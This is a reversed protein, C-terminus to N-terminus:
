TKEGPDAKLASRPGRLCTRPGDALEILPVDDLPNNTNPHYFEALRRLLRRGTEIYIEPEVLAEMALTEGAVSEQEVIKWAERDRPSFTSPSEWDLPPMIPHVNKTWRVALISFVTGAAIWLLSATTLWLWGREYLWITGFAVYALVPGILLVALVWVRWQKLISILSVEGRLRGCTRDAGMERVTKKCNEIRGPSGFGPPDLENGGPIPVVGCDRHFASLFRRRTRQSINILSEELIAGM